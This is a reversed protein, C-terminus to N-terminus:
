TVSETKDGTVFEMSSISLGTVDIMSAKTAIHWHEPKDRDFICQSKRQQVNVIRVIKKIRTYACM